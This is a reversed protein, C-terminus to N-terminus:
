ISKKALSWPVIIIILGLALCVIGPVLIGGSPKLKTVTLDISSTGEKSATVLVAYWGPAKLTLVEHYSTINEVMLIPNYDEISGDHQLMQIMDDFNLVFLSFATQNTSEIDLLIDGATRVIVGDYDDYAVDSGQGYTVAGVFSVLILAIGIIMLSKGLRDYRTM